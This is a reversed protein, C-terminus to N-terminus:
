LTVLTQRGVWSEGAALEIRQRAAAAEVCLMRRFDTPAMDAFQAIGDEWLNWVVVDPFGDANIGLARGDERLLLPRTVDHYVRDIASEVRLVDGSERRIANDDLADRYEFGYLGELRCEEVEPVRLYTHLAGSFAFPAHGSNIVELELDLRGGEIAVTLELTFPHPWLARTDANDSLELTTLAYDDGTRQETVSWNATRAFGHRPLKGLTSFQPFCVPVGGRIPSAGDYAARESLYLRERGRAPVWSLVQGGHLAVVASAGASTSLRLAPLGQFDITEINGPM